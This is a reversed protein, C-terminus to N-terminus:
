SYMETVEVGSARLFMSNLLNKALSDAFERKGRKNAALKAQDTNMPAFNAALFFNV